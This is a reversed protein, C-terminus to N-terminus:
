FLYQEEQQHHHHQRQQQQQEENDDRPVYIRPMENLRLLVNLANIKGHTKIYSKISLLQAYNLPAFAQQLKLIWEDELLEKVAVPPSSPSPSSTPPPPPAEIELVDKILSEQLEKLDLSNRESEKKEAEREELFSSMSYLYFSLFSYFFLSSSSIPLYTRIYQIIIIIIFQSKNFGKIYMYLSNNISNGSTSKSFFFFFISLFPNDLQNIM